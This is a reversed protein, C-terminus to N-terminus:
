PRPPDAPRPAGGPGAAPGSGSRSPRKRSGKVPRSRKAATARQEGPQTLRGATWLGGYAYHPNGDCRHGWCLDCVSAWPGGRVVRVRHLVTCPTM